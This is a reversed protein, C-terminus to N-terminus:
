AARLYDVIREVELADFEGGYLRRFLQERVSATASGGELQLGALALAKATSFM